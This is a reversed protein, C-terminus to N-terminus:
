KTSMKDTGEDISDDLMHNLRKKVKSPFSKKIQKWLTQNVLTNVKANRRTWVSIRMRCFPCSLSTEYVNLTFCHLCLDHNCPMTVPKIMIDMCISCICDKWTLDGFVLDDNEM